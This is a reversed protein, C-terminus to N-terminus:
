NNFCVVGGFFVGYMVAIGFLTMHVIQGVGHTGDMRAQMRASACVPTHMHVRARTHMCTLEHASPHKHIPNSQTTAEFLHKMHADIHMVSSLVFLAFAVVGLVMLQLGYSYLGYSCLGYSVVVGLVM